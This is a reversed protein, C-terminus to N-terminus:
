KIAADGMRNGTSNGSSGADSPAGAPTSQVTLGYHAMNVKIAGIDEEIERRLSAVRQKLASGETVWDTMPSDHSPTGQYLDRIAVMFSEGTVDDKRGEHSAIDRMTSLYLRVSNGLAVFKETFDTPCRTLDQREFSAAFAADSQLTLFTNNAAATICDKQAKLLAAAQAAAQADAAARATAEQEAQAASSDSQTGCGGVALMALAFCWRLQKM